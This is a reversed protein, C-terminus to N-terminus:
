AASEAAENILQCMRRYTKHCNWSLGEWGDPFVQAEEKFMTTLEDWHAVLAAWEPSVFALESIRPEFEPVQQLLLLCRRLDAPDMPHTASRKRGGSAAFGTLTEFIQESSIGREGSTLWRLQAQTLPQHSM